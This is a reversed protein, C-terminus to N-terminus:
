KHAVSVRRKHTTLCSKTFNYLLKFIFYGQVSLMVSEKVVPNSNDKTELLVLFSTEDIIIMVSGIWIVDVRIHPCDILGVSVHYSQILLRM